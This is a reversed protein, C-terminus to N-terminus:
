RVSTDVYEQFPPYRRQEVAEVRYIIDQYRSRVETRAQAGSALDASIAVVEKKVLV